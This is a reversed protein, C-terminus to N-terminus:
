IKFDRLVLLSEPGKCFLLDLISLNPLFGHKNEFVQGYHINQFNIKRKPSIFGRFDQNNESKEIYNSTLQFNIPLAINDIMFRLLDMNWDLLFDYKKQFFPLLEDTYYEFYPSKGYASKIARWHQTQWNEHNYIRVTNMKQQNNKGKELPISLRLIGNSTAIHCRNRYSGKQYNEYQEIFISQQKLLVVFYSIPPLYQSEIVSKM